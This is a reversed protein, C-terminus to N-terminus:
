RGFYPPMKVKPLSRRILDSALRTMPVGQKRAEWYLVPILDWDIRPSYYRKM